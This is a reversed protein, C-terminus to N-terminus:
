EVWYQNALVQRPVQPRGLRDEELTPPHLPSRPVPLSNLVQISAYMHIMHLCVHPNFQSSLLWYLLNTKSSSGLGCPDLLRIPMLSRIRM